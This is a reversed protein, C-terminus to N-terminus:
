YKINNVKLEIRIKRDKEKFRNEELKKTEEDLSNYKTTEGLLDQYKKIDSLGEICEDNLFTIDNM